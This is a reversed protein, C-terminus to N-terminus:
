PDTRLWWETHAAYSLSVVVNTDISEGNLYRDVLSLYRAADLIGLDALCMSTTFDARAQQLHAQVTRDFYSLPLGTRATRSGTVVEPLVNRVAHRLLRKNEWNTAVSENAPRTAAYRILRSDMLPARVDVGEDAYFRDVHASVREIFPSILYWAQEASAHSEGARRQPRIYRREVMGSRVAFDGRIWHPIPRHSLDVLKKGTARRGLSVMWPPMNPRVAYKFFDYFTLRGMMERWAHRFRGWQMRRAHDALFSLGLSFWFDGGLGTLAVRAPVGEVAHALARNWLEYTHVFPEDRRAARVLPDAYAPVTGIPVWHPARGWRHTAAEILEDERGADGEPHSVSVAELASGLGRQTFLAQGAGYLSTSDYGGSLLVATGAALDSRADVADQILRLLIEGADDFSERGPQDFIPVEWFRWVQHGRTPTWRLANGAPVREIGKFPTERAYVTGVDSADEAITVLNLSSNITPVHRLTRAHSSVSLGRSTRAFFLPRTGAHDRAALFRQEQADWAMWAFDGEIADLAGEGLARLAALIWEASNAGSLPIAGGKRKVAEALDPTFYLTANAFVTFRGDSASKLGARTGQRPSAAALVIDPAPRVLELDHQDLPASRALLQRVMSDDVDPVNLLALLTTM